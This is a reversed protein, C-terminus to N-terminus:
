LSYCVKPFSVSVPNTNQICTAHTCIVESTTTHVAHVSYHVITGATHNMHFRVDRHLPFPGTPIIDPGGYPILPQYKAVATTGTIREYAGGQPHCM